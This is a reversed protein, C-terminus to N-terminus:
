EFQIENGGGGRFVTDHNYMKMAARHHLLEEMMPKQKNFIKLLKGLKRFITVEAVWKDRNLCLFM